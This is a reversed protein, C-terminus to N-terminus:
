RASGSIHRKMVPIGFLGDAIKVNMKQGVKLKRYKQFSVIIDRNMGNDFQIQIFYVNYAEGQAYSKRTIRKIHHRVKHYKRDIKVEQEHITSDDALSFNLTLFIATLIGTLSVVGCLYNIWRPKFGTICRFLRIAVVSLVAAVMGCIAFPVWCAILADNGITVAMIYCVVTLFIVVAIRIGGKM